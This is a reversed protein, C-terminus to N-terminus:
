GGATAARVTEAVAAELRRSEARLHSRSCPVHVLRLGPVPALAGPLQAAATVRQYAIGDAACVGGPRRRAAHRLGARLHRRAGAGRSSRRSSAAATTTSSWWTLDPRPEGPGLVLGNRDHLFTLDGLLAYAPRGPRALAAGIATSVTGDIGAVGRNALVEVGTSADAALDLDRVPLSSGVVLLGGAAAAAVQRAVAPGTLQGRDALRRRPAAAAAAGARLWGDAWPTPASPPGDPGAAGTRRRGGAPRRRGM